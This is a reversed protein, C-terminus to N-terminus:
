ALFSKFAIFSTARTKTQLFTKLYHKYEKTLSIDCVYKWVPLDTGFMLRGHWNFMDLRAFADEYLYATDNWINDHDGIIRAMESMPRCHAFNFHVNPFQEAIKALSSPRVDDTMGSHFMVCLGREEAISLVNMLDKRRTGVWPTEGEHLKIGKFLGTELWQMARDDDFLHAWALDKVFGEIGKSNVWDRLDYIM